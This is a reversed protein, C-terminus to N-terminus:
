NIKGLKNNIKSAYEELYERCKVVKDIIEQVLQSDSELNYATWREELPM